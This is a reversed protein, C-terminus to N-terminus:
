GSRLIDTKKVGERLASLTRLILDDSDTCRGFNRLNVLNERFKELIEWNKGYNRWVVIKEGCTYDTINTVFILETDTHM